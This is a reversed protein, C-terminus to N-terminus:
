QRAAQYQQDPEPAHNLRWHRLLLLHGPAPMGASQSDEYRMAKPTGCIIQFQKEVDPFSGFIQQRTAEASSHAQGWIGSRHEVQAASVNQRTETASRTGGSAATAWPDGQASDPASFQRAIRQTAQKSNYGPPFGWHPQSFLSYGIGAGGFMDWKAIEHAKEETEAVYIKQLYGFNETGVQYGQKPPRTATFTGCTSPPSWSPPWRSTPTATNRAGNM